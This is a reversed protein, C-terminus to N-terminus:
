VGALERGGAEPFARAQDPPDVSVHPTIRDLWRPFLWNARGILHMLSPVLLTRLVFADLFVASALGLGLLKLVREPDLTFGLFVMIMIAAAATIIGGTEAQGITIARRNDRTRTWEEHMRSVLFVQYDMSLGFIIAFFMVPAWAEIPGGRGAGILDSLWGWQFLAVVVGFSAGAAFLNMVAGTLPVVISRFAVLLLLFSLGVVAAIFLPMKASLVHAFDVYVATHGYVYVQDGSQQAAPPVVDKRLHHVLDTTRADQPSTVSKFMVLSLRPTLGEPPVFVSHPDVDTVQPLRGAIAQATQQAHDGHVVLTLTSNYGPGFGQAILDYGKRTTTNAPDNGQDAHGLRMSFFPVALVAIVIAGVVALAASRRSVLDSWRAWFGSAHADVFRGAHVERRQRRTLVRLGLFSLLAPMLTLSAVMTLGVAVSVGIAMGYFFNVGLAILGLMAICVTGAAFLV